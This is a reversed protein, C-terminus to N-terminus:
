EQNRLYKKLMDIVKEDGPVLKLKRAEAISFVKCGGGEHDKLKKLNEPIKTIFVKRDIMYGDDLQNICDGIYKYDKTEYNLEEKLERKFTEEKKEGEKIGGGFFGWEEGRRSIKHRDQLLLGSKDNYFVVVAVRRGWFGNKLVKEIFDSKIKTYRARNGKALSISEKKIRIYQQRLKKDKRLLDRFKLLDRKEKSKKLVIHFHCDSPKSEEEKAVFIRGKKKEVYPFGLEALFPLLEETKQWNDARILIDVVGKGGIGPIATSGIHSIEFEDGFREKLKKKVGRFVNKASNSYPYYQVM